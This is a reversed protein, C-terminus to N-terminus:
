SRADFVNLVMSFEDSTLYEIGPMFIVMGM